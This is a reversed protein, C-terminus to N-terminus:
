NVVAKWATTLQHDGRPEYHDTAWRATGITWLPNSRDPEELLVWGRQCFYSIGQGDVTGGAGQSLTCGVGIGDGVRLGWLAPGYSDTRPLKRTLRIRLVKTGWPKELCVVSHRGSEKWCPDHIYDGRFCRYLRGNVASSTWCRGKRTAVVPFRKRLHGAPTLLTIRKVTTATPSSTTAPAARAPVATAPTSALLAAVVAVALLALALPRTRSPTTM